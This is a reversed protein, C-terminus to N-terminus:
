KLVEFIKKRLVAFDDILDGGAQAFDKRGGGKGNFLPAIKNVITGAQWKGTIDNFVSVIVMSKKETNSFLIAVGKIDTSLKDAIASLQKREINEMFEVSFMISNNNVINNLLDKIDIIAADAKQDKKQLKLKENIGKFFDLLSEKKQGFHSQINNLISLGDQIYAFAKEGGVAEIRRIGSSISSESIIKFLGIEGTRDLHTGGCLEKSFGEISVLRVNDTYKEDFIAIAGKQIADEYAIVETNIQLNERIKKNILNEIDYIEKNSLSKYHTFDFRLRDQEVLSGSQKVHLGLTERLASHLLHTSTHHISINKRIKKDIKVFVRDGIKMSGQELKIYHVFANIGAKETNIISFFTDENEGTGLDGRQGGSEAYFPTKDLILLFEDTSNEFHIEDTKQFENNDKKYLAIIISENEINDYGIFDTKYTDIDELQKVGQKKDLLSKRSRNKQDELESKYEIMDIKIDKEIALDMAFDVPFGFTDSLKFIEKGSIINKKNEIVNSLIDEFRKLGTSLTRAFREEESLIMESIFNKSHNLEPYVENMTEVVKNSIKYLFPDSFGLNKGHRSARRLLRKLVYGRGDNSPIVGDSILFTLARIHDAIVKLSIEHKKANLDQGSLDKTFDIIPMFLDTKYNSDQEQILATLREMGMGTDISPAPLPNLKGSSDKLYQMFVLNWIEVFRSENTEFDPIGFSEGKDFHIESCPGCPGTEGMQWFNDKEGLRVIKEAPIGMMDKWINFAEDDDKYITIWLDEPKFHFHNILLDWAHEIAKEKFYDGFSFNGLMEFFTHHFETKGVENFDNHKGSVRMCKQISVAKNYKRREEGIFVQKFQNMGANTFLLTPDKAPVLPASLVPHHKKNKFYSNFTKRIEIHKM